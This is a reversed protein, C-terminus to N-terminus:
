LFRVMFYVASPIFCLLCYIINRINRDHIAYYISICCLIVPAFFAGTSTLVISAIVACAAYIWNNRGGQTKLKRGRDVATVAYCALAPAAVAAFVSKGQWIAAYIFFGAANRSYASFLGLVTLFVLFLSVDKKDDLLLEAVMAQATYAMLVILAAWPIHVFAAPHIELLRSLGAIMTVYGNGSLSEMGDGSNGTYPNSIRVDNTEYRQVAAALFYEDSTIGPVYFYVMCAIQLVIAIGLLLHQWRFRDKIDYISFNSVVDYIYDKAYGFNIVTSVICLIFIFVLWMCIRIDVNHSFVGVTIDALWYLVLIILFGTVTKFGANHSGQMFRAPIAGILFSAAFILPIIILSM